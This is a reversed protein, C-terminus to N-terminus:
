GALFVIVQHSISRCLMAISVTSAQSPREGAFKKVVSNLTLTEKLRHNGVGAFIEAVAVRFIKCRQRPSDFINRCDNFTFRHPTPDRSFRGVADNKISDWNLAKTSLPQRIWSDVDFM